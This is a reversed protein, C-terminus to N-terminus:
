CLHHNLNSPLPPACDLSRGGTAESNGMEGTWGGGLTCSATGEVAIVRGDAGGLCRIGRQPHVFTFRPRRNGQNVRGLLPADGVSHACFQVGPM